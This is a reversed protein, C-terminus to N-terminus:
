KYCCARLVSALKKAGSALTVGLPKRVIWMGVAARQNNPLTATGQM